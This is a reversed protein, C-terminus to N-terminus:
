QALFSTKLVDKHNSLYICIIEDKLDDIDKNPIKPASVKRVFLYFM